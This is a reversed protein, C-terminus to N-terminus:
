FRFSFGLIFSDDIEIETGNDLDTSMNRYALYVGVQQTVNFDLALSYESFRDGDM